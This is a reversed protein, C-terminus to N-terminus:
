EPTVFQKEFIPTQSGKPYIMLNMYTGRALSPGVCILRPITKMVYPFCSFEKNDIKVYYDGQIGNPVIISVQTKGDDFFATYVEHGTFDITIVTPSPSATPSPTDSPRSTASPVPSIYATLTQAALETVRQNISMALATADATPVTVPTCGSFIIVLALFVVMKYSM